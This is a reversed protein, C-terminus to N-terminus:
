LCAWLVWCRSSVGWFNTVSSPACVSAHLSSWPHYFKIKPCSSHKAYDLVGCGVCAVAETDATSICSSSIKWKQYNELPKAKSNTDKLGILTQQVLYIRFCTRRPRQSFPQLEILHQNKLLTVLKDFLECPVSVAEKHLQKTDEQPSVPEPPHSATSYHLWGVKKPGEQSLWRRQSPM